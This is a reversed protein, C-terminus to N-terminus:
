RIGFAPLQQALAQADLQLILGKANEAQQQLVGALDYGTLFKAL